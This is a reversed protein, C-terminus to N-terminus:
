VIGGGMVLTVVNGSSDSYALTSCETHATDDGNYWDAKEEGKHVFVDRLPYLLIPRRPLKAEQCISSM